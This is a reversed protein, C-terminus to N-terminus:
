DDPLIIRAKIGNEDLLYLLGGGDILEIPKDNAFNYADPGYSSTTVLIGKNAGENMMTGFLDRVASVGVPNKYRKAQIVIKGGLIPRLDYAIADVGGDRTSRTLKTELGMKHFLYGVLKEFEYPNLDMLNPRSELESLMSSNEIFRKDVMNFEVVPKVPQMEEPRPSVQAGLNRLCVLKDVRALNLESFEERNTRLSILYPQIDRGTAPDISKTFGNFVVVDIANVYDANFIEYVTRLCIAALVDKYLFKLESKKRLTQTVSNRSKIYRYEKVEPILEINPLEYDIVLENSPALYALDFNRPFSSFYTSHSLVLSNYTFIADPDLNLYKAELEDIEESRLKVKNLYEIKEIEYQKKLSNIKHNRAEEQGLYSRYDEQYRKLAFQIDNKYRRREWPLLQGLFSLPQIFNFYDDKKPAAGKLRLFLPPEFNKFTNNIKLQKFDFRGSSNIGDELIKTLGEVYNALELNKEEVEVLSAPKSKNVGGWDNSDKCM